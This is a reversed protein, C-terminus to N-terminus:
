AEGLISVLEHATDEPFESQATDMASRIGAEYKAIKAKLADVTEQRYLKGGGVRDHLQSVFLHLDTNANAEATLHNGAPTTVGIKTKIRTKVIVKEM